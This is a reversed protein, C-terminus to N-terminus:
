PDLTGRLGLGLWGHAAGGDRDLVAVSATGPAATSSRSASQSILMGLTMGIYPGIRTTRGESGRGVVFDAGLRLDAIDLGHRRLDVTSDGARGGQYLMEWGFGYRFWPIFSPGAGLATEYHGGLGYSRATCRSVSACDDRSALAAHGHFGLLSKPSTRFSLSAGIPLLTPSGYSLAETNEKAIARVVGLELALRAGEQRRAAPPAAAVDRQAPAPQAVPAQPQQPQQPQQAQPEQTADAAPPAPQSAPQAPAIPPPSPSPPPLQELPQAQPEQALASSAVLFVGCAGCATLVSRGSRASRASRMVM